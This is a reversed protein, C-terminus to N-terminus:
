HMQVVQERLVECSSQIQLESNLSSLVTRSLKWIVNWLCSFNLKKPIFYKELSKRIEIVLISWGDLFDIKKNSTIVKSNKPTDGTPPIFWMEPIDFEKKLYITTPSWFYRKPDESKNSETRIILGFCCVVKGNIAIRKQLEITRQQTEYGNESYYFVSAGFFLYATYFGLLALWQRPSM